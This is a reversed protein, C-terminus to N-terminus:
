FSLYIKSLQNIKGASAWPSPRTGPGPAMSVLAELHLTQQTLKIWALSALHCVGEGLIIIVKQAEWLPYFTLNKMEWDARIPVQVRPYKVITQLWRFAKAIKKSKFTRKTEPLNKRSIDWPFAITLEIEHYIPYLHVKQGKSLTGKIVYSHSNVARARRWVKRKAEEHNYRADNIRM